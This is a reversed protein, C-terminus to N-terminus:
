EFAGGLSSLSIARRQTDPCQDESSSAPKFGTYCMWTVNAYCIHHLLHQRRIRRFFFPDLFATFTVSFTVGIGGRFFLSCKGFGFHSPLLLLHLHVYYCCPRPSYWSLKPMCLPFGKGSEVSKSPHHCVDGVFRSHDGQSFTDGAQALHHSYPISVEQYPFQSESSPYGTWDSPQKWPPIRGGRLPPKRSFRGDVEGRM